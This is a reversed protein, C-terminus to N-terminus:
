ETAVQKDLMMALKVEDELMRLMDPSSILLNFQDFFALIRGTHRLTLTSDSWVM